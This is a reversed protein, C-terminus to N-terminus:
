GLQIIMMMQFLCSSEEAPKRWGKFFLSLSQKEEFQSKLILVGFLFLFCALIELAIHLGKEPDNSSVKTTIM